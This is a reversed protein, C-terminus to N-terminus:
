ASHVYWMEGIWYEFIVANVNLVNLLISIPYHPMQWLKFPHTLLPLRTFRDKLTAHQIHHVVNFAWVREDGLDCSAAYEHAAKVAERQKEYLVEKLKEDAM